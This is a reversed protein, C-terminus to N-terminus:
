EGYDMERRQDTLINIADQAKQSNQTGILLRKGNKKKIMIGKNGKVNYAWGHWSFRIGWGGYAWPSYRIIQISQIDNLPIKKWSNIVPPYRFQVGSADIRTELRMLLFLIVVLNIMGIGALAASSEKSELLNNGLGYDHAIDRIATVTVLLWVLAISIWLLPQNFKQSEEFVPRHMNSTYPELM